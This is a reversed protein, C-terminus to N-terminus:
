IREFHRNRKRHAFVALEIGVGQPGLQSDISSPRDESLPSDVPVVDLGRWLNNPRLQQLQGETARTSYQADTCSMEDDVFLLTQPSRRLRQVAQQEHIESCPGDGPEMAEGQMRIKELYAGREYVVSRRRVKGALCDRHVRKIEQVFEM